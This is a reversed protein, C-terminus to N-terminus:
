EFTEAIGGCEIREARGPAVGMPCGAIGGLSGNTTELADGSGLGLGVSQRSRGWPAAIQRSPPVVESDARGARFDGLKGGIKQLFGAFVDNLGHPLDVADHEGGFRLRRGVRLARERPVTVERPVEEVARDDRDLFRADSSADRDRHDDAGIRPTVHARHELARGGDRAFTASVCLELSEFGRDRTGQTSKRLEQTSRLSM